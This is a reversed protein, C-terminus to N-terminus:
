FLIPVDRSARTAWLFLDNRRRAGTGAAAPAASAFSGRLRVPAAMDRFRRSFGTVHIRRPDARFVNATARVIAVLERREGTAMHDSGGDALAVLRRPIEYGRAAGRAPEHADPLGSGTDGHPLLILGCGSAPCARPVRM